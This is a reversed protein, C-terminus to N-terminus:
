SPDKPDSTIPACPAPRPARPLRVLLRDGEFSVRALAPLVPGPLILRQRFRRVCCMGGRREAVRGSLTLGTETVDLLMGAPDLGPAELSALYGEPEERLEWCPAPAANLGLDQCIDDFLRDMDRRLEALRSEGWLKLDAM